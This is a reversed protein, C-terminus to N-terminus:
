NKNQNKINRLKQANSMNAKTEPSLKKGLKADRMKQRTEESLEKIIKPKNSMTERYKLLREETLKVM